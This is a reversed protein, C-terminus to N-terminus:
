AKKEGNSDVFLITVSFTNKEATVSLTGHYKEVVMDISKWGYGHHVTDKKRTLPRGHEMRIDGEFYNKESISIMNGMRVIKLRIIKKDEGLKTVAEIANDGCATFALAIAICSLLRSLHLTKM